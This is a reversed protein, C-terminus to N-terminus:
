EDHGGSHNSLDIRWFREPRKADDLGGPGFPGLQSAYAAIARQKLRQRGPDSPAVDPEAPTAQVQAAALAALRQQLVGDISRYPVDEYALASAAAAPLLRLAAIAARHALLHDSHFLGIPYLVTAGAHERLVRALADGIADPTAPEDYQADCFDLWTARAGLLTLAARDEARRAAIAEAASAFGCSRDWDTSRGRDAPCGAFVTVVLSGPAAALLNACGLVADDLHPSIVVFM